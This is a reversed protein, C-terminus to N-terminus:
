AISRKPPATQLPEGHVFFGGSVRQLRGAEAPAGAPPQRQRNYPWPLALCSLVLLYGYKGFGSDFSGNLTIIGLLEVHSHERRREITIIWYPGHPDAQTKGTVRIRNHSSICDEAEAM